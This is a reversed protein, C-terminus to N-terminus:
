KNEEYIKKDIDQFFGLLKELLILALNYYKRNKTISFMNIHLKSYYFTENLNKYLQILEESDGEQFVSTGKHFEEIIKAAKDLEKFFLVLLESDKLSREALKSDDPMEVQDLYLSAQKLIEITKEIAKIFITSSSLHSMSTQYLDEQPKNEAKELENLKYLEM